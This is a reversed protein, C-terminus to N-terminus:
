VNQQTSGILFLHYYNNIILNITCFNYNGIILFRKIVKLDREQYPLALWPMSDFYEDFSDEDRDSSIFVIDFKDALAGSKLETYWKALQPTFGRCPPCWHASFYLGLVKGEGEISSLAVDERTGKKGKVLNTIGKFLQTAM